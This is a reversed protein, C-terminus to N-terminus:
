VLWTTWVQVSLLRWTAEHQAMVLTVAGAEPVSSAFDFTWQVYGLPDPQGLGARSGGGDQRAHFPRHQRFRVTSM